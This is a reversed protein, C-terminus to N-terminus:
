LLLRPCLLVRWQRLRPGLIVWLLGVWLLLGPIGYEAALQLPYCHANEHLRSPPAMWPEVFLPLVLPFEGAGVGSVPSSKVMAVGAQWFGLRDGYAHQKLREILLLDGFPKGQSAQFLVAAGLVVACIGIPVLVSSAPSELEGTSLPDKHWASRMRAVWLFGALLCLGGLALLDGARSGTFFLVALGPILLFLRSRPPRAALALSAGLLLLSFSSASNADQLTLASKYLAWNKWPEFLRPLYFVFYSAAAVCGGAWLGWMTARGEGPEADVRRALLFALMGEILLTGARFGYFPQVQKLQLLGALPHQLLSLGLGWSPYRYRVLLALTCLVVYLGFLLVLTGAL